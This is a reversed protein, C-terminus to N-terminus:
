NSTTEGLKQGVGSHGGCMIKTDKTHSYTGDKCKATAGVSNGSVTADHATEYKLASTNGGIGGAGGPAPTYVKTNPAPALKAETTNGGIGGASTPPGPPMKADPPGPPMNGGLKTAVGKHDVCEWKTNTSHSYMGDNCKATAGASNTNVTADHQKWKQEATNSGIGGAASSAPTAVNPDRPSVVPASAPPVLKTAGGTGGAGGASSPTNVVVAGQAPPANVRVAGVPQTSIGGHKGCPSKHGTSDVTGDKCPVHPIPAQAALSTAAILVAAPVLALRTMARM